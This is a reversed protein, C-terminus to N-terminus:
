HVRAGHHPPREGAYMYLPRAPQAAQPNATGAEEASWSGTNQGGTADYYFSM